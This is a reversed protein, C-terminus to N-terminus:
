AGGPSATKSRGGKGRSVGHAVTNRGSRSSVGSADREARIRELLVSAPEDNPNQPVLKGQFARKLISQRLRSARKNSKEVSSTVYEAVTISASLESLIRIQEAIPPLAILLSRLHDLNLGPKGAGYAATELVKRGHAPSVIWIYLYKGINGLVPRILAVHQSVYAEDLELEVLASKSSFLVTGAPM